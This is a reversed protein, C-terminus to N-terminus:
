QLRTLRVIEDLCDQIVDRMYHGDTATMRVKIFKKNYEKVYITSIKDKDSKPLFSFTSGGDKEAIGWDHSIEGEGHVYIIEEIADQIESRHDPKRGGAPYVYITAIIGPASYALSYGLGPQQPEYDKFSDYHLWSIEYPFKFPATSDTFVIFPSINGIQDRLNGNFAFYYNEVQTVVNKEGVKKTEIKKRHIKGLGTAILETGLIRWFVGRGIGLGRLVLMQTHLADDYSTSQLLMPEDITRGGGGSIDLEYGFDRELMVRVTDAGVEDSREQSNATPSLILVALISITNALLWFNTTLASNM